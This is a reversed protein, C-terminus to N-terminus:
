NSGNRPRLPITLCFLIPNPPLLHRLASCRTSIVQRQRDNNTYRHVFLYGRAVSFRAVDRSTSHVERNVLIQTCSRLKVNRESQGGFHRPTRFNENPRHALHNPDVLSRVIAGRSDANRCDDLAVFYYTGIRGRLLDESGKERPRRLAGLPQGAKPIDPLSRKVNFLM